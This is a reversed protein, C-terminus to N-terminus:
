AAIVGAQRMGGGLAKRNARAKEIFEKTGCLLSGVPACLGKSICFMVSDACAAIEAADLHTYSVPTSISWELPWSFSANTRGFWVGLLRELCCPNM